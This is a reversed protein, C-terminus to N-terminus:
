FQERRLVVVYTSTRNMFSIFGTSTAAKHFKPTVLFVKCTPSIEIMCIRNRQEYDKYFIKYARADEDAYTTLRLPTAVWKGGSLKGVLFTTFEPIKLRGKEALIEPLLSNVGIHHSEDERYFGARFSISISKVDIKFRDGGSSSTVRAGRDRSSTSVRPPAVPAAQISAALSPPPPPRSSKTSVLKTIAKLSFSSTEKQNSSAKLPADELKSGFTIPPADLISMSAAESKISMPFEGSREEPLKGVSDDTKEEGADDSSSDSDKMVADNEDSEKEVLAESLDKAGNVSNNKGSDVVPLTLLLSRKAAEEIKARDLKVKQSALEESTMDVLRVADIEGLLVRPALTLNNKDELNTRLSRAKDRYEDSVRSVGLSEQFRDFMENEIEWAKLTCYATMEDANPPEPLSDISLLKMGKGLAKELYTRCTDRFTTQPPAADNEPPTDKRSGDLSTRYLLSELLRTRDDLLSMSDHYRRRAFRQDLEANSHKDLYNNISDLLKKFSRVLGEIPSVVLSKKGEELLGSVQERFGHWKYVVDEDSKPLSRTETFFANFSTLVRSLDKEWDKLAAIDSKLCHFLVACWRIATGGVSHHAGDKKSVVRLTKDQKNTSVFVGHYSLTKRLDEPIKLFTEEGEKLIQMADDGPIVFANGVSDDFPSDTCVAEELRVLWAAAKRIWDFAAKGPTEALVNDAVSSISNIASKLATYIASGTFRYLIFEGRKGVLSTTDPYAARDLNAGDFDKGLFDHLQVEFKNSSHLIGNVAGERPM